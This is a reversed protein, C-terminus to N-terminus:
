TTPCEKESMLMIDADNFVQFAIALKDDSASSRSDPHLCSRILDYESRTFVGLRADLIQRCEKRMNDLRNYELPLREQVEAQVRSEFETGVNVARGGNLLFITSGRKNPSIGEIRYLLSILGAKMQDKTESSYGSIRDTAYMGEHPKKVFKLWDQFARRAPVDDVVDDPPIESEDTTDASEDAPQDHPITFKCAILDHWTTVGAAEFNPLVNGLEETPFKAAFQARYKLERTSRGTRKSLEVLYGNPLRGKGDRALLMRRGFDWRARIGDRDLDVICKDIGALTDIDWADETDRM